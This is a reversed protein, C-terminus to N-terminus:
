KSATANPAATTTVKLDDPIPERIAGMIEAALQRMWDQQEQSRGAPPTKEALVTKAAESVSKKKETNTPVGPAVHKQIGVLAAVRVEYPASASKAALLLPPLAAPLPVGASRSAPETEHLDAILSVAQYRVAPHYNQAMVETMKKLTLKNLQDHVGMQKNSASAVLFRNKFEQHMKALGPKGPNSAGVCNEPQTFLPFFTNLIFDDLANQNGALSATGQVISMVDRAEKTAMVKNWSSVDKSAIQDKKFEEGFTLTAAGSVLAALVVTKM